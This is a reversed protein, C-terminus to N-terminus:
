RSRKMKMFGGKERRHRAFKVRNKGDKLGVEM